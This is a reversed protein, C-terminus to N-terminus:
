KKRGVLMMHENIGVISPHTCTKLHTELLLDNYEKMEYVENYREEHTSFIGELGVMELIEVKDRFEEEVEEPLYFHCPAFGVGGSYQGTSPYRRYVEPHAKVSPWLFVSANICLALRGIVSVFIPAGPKAVRVLEDAAKIRKEKDVLHSLPGGLCLVADFSCSDFLSLDEVSGELVGKVKDEFGAEKIKEEAIELM